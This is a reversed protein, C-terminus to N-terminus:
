NLASKQQRSPMEQKLKTWNEINNSVNILKYLLRLDVKFFLYIILYIFLNGSFIGIVSFLFM